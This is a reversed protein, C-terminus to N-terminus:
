SVVVDGAVVVELHRTSAAILLEVKQEVTDLVGIIALNTCSVPLQFIGKGNGAQRGDHGCLYVSMVM